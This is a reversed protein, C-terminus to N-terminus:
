LNVLTSQNKADKLDAGLKEALARDLTRGMPYIDLKGVLEDFDTRAAPGWRYDQALAAQATKRIREANPHRQLAALEQLKALGYGGSDFRLYQAPTHWNSAHLDDSSQELIRHYQSNAALRYPSLIPTLAVSIVAILALAIGINVRAIGALWPGRRLAAVSYGTAYIVVAGAVVFAWVREVTLGYQRSRITLAYLATLAIIITLPLVFRLSQAIWRPYPSVV